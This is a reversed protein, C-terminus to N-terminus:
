RRIPLARITALLDTVRAQVRLSHILRLDNATLDARLIPLDPLQILLPGLDEAPHAGSSLVIVLDPRCQHLQPLATHLTAAVGIVSVSPSHGLLGAISEAFLSDGVVFVRHVAAAGM